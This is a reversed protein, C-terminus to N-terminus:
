SKKIFLGSIIESVKLNLFKQVATSCVPGIQRCGLVGSNSREKSRKLTELTTRNDDFLFYLFKIFIIQCNKGPLFKLLDSM